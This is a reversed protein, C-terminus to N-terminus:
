RGRTKEGRLTMVSSTATAVLKGDARTIDCTYYSVTRGLQIVRATAQLKDQWVPRFFNIKLDITTFSEDEALTAAHATGIAFDAIDCLVGGHVTGMPNAHRAPDIEIGITATGEGLDVLDFGLTRAIPPPYIMSTKDEATLTGNAYKKLWAGIKMAAGKATEYVV